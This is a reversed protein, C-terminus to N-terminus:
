DILDALLWSPLCGALAPNYSFEGRGLSVIGLAHGDATVVPSGSTGMWTADKTTDNLFLGNGWGNLTVTCHTWQRSLSLLWAPGPESTARGIRLTRRDGVLRRYADAQRTFQYGQLDRLVAIDGVPDAFLCEAHVTPKKGLQSLLKGRCIRETSDPHPDAQPVNPLCHAATVVAVGCRAKVLFGRGHGVTVLTEQIWSPPEPILRWGELRAAPSRRKTKKTAM